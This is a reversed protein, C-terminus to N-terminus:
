RAASAAYRPATRRRGRAIRDPDGQHIAQWIALPTVGYHAAAEHASEFVRGAIRVRMPVKGRVGLGVRDLSGARRANAVARWHSRWVRFIESLQRSSPLM